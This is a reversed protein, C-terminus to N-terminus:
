LAGQLNKHESSKSDANVLVRGGVKLVIVFLPLTFGALLPIPGFLGSALLAYGAGYLLPFKVLLLVAAAVRDPGEPRVIAKVLVKLFYMNIISWIGGSLVGLTPYLGLYYLGFPLFILLLVGTTSLTRAIFDLGLANTM